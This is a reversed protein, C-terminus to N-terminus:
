PHPATHAAMQAITIAFVLAVFAIIAWAIILNRRKRAKAQAPTLAVFEEPAAIQPGSM